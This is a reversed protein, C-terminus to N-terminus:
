VVHNRTGSSRKYICTGASVITLM